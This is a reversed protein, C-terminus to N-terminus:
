EVEKTRIREREGSSNQLLTALEETRNGKTKEDEDNVTLDVYLM